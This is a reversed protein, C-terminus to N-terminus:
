KQTDFIRDVAKLMVNEDMYDIPISYFFQNQQQILSPFTNVKMSRVQKIENLLIDQTEPSNIEKNFWDINLGIDESLELLITIDSPNQANKYYAAQIARTMKQDFLKGQKRAAIVARCAPYTSRRPTNLKWFDFNFSMGPITKEIKYWANQVMLKTNDDMAASSDPALGGLLRKIEFQEGLKKVFKEYTRTFGWCWSCMPDHVYYIITKM